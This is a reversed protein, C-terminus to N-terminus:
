AQRRRRGILGGLGLLALGAPAPIAKAVFVSTYSIQDGAGVAFQLKIGISSNIAGYPMAPIFPNDGFSAFGTNASNFAGPTLLVPDHLAGGAVENGDALATWLAEGGWTSLLGGDADGTVGASASGGLLTGPGLPAINLNFVITVLQTFATNNVWTINASVIPDENTNIDYGLTWFPNLFTGDDTYNFQGPGVPDGNQSYTPFNQAGDVTVTIDLPDAQAMSCAVAVAAVAAISGIKSNIFTMSERRLENEIRMSAHITQKADCRRRLAM